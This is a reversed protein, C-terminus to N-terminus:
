DAFTKYKIRKAVIFTKINIGRFSKALINALASSNPTFITISINMIRNICSASVLKYINDHYYFM